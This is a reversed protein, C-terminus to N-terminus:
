KSFFNFWKRKKRTNENELKEVEIVNDKKEILQLQHSESILKNADNFANIISNIQKDKEEIQKKLDEIQIQLIKIISDKSDNINETSTKNEEEATELSINYVDKLAQKNIFTKNGVKKTYQQLTDKENHLRKYIAQQTINALASFEAVTLFNDKM